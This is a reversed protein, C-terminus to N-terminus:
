SHVVVPGPEQPPHTVIHQVLLFGMRGSFPSRHCRYHHSPSDRPLSPMYLDLSSPLPFSLPYLPCQSIHHFRIIGDTRAGVGRADLGGRIRSASSAMFHACLTSTRHRRICTSHCM